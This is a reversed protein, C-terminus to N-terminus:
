REPPKGQQLFALIPCQAAPGVGSCCDALQHLTDKLGSLEAIKGEILAVKEEVLAKVAGRDDDPSIALLEAIEDLAFGLAKARSIFALWQVVEADYQRYGSAARQPQPLVGRQEYYRITEVSVGAASAVQGIRLAAM